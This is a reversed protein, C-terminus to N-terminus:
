DCMISIPDSAPFTEELARDLRCDLVQKSNSELEAAAVRSATLAFVTSRLRQKRGKDFIDTNETAECLRGDIPRVIRPLDPRKNM